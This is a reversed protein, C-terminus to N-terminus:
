SKGPETLAFCPIEEGTALKPLLKRKQEETGYHNLLEAPGLSNPVMVTIGVPVSKSSIQQIVESHALASFGLGGYEKPIIMGLFKHKKIIAWINEPIDRSQWIKWDDIASCLEKVPGNMFAKEEATLDPYSEAMMRKFNPKGSFLDAEVWVNGAKLAAKETESIQPLFGLKQMTKALPASILLTRIPRVNLLVAAAGFVIWLNPDAGCCAWLAGGTALTWFWLPVGMFGLLLVM